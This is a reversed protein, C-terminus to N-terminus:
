IKTQPEPLKVDVLAPFGARCIFFLYFHRPGVRTKLCFLFLDLLGLLSKGLM